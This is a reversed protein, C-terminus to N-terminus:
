TVAVSSRPAVPPQLRCSRRQARGVVKVVKRCGRRSETARQQDEQVASPATAIRQVFVRARHLDCHTTVPSWSLGHAIDQQKVGRSSVDFGTLEQYIVDRRCRLTVPSVFSSLPVPVHFSDGVTLFLGLMRWPFCFDHNKRIPNSGLDARIRTPRHRQDASKRLSRGNGRDKFEPAAGYEGRKVVMPKSSSERKLSLQLPVILAVSIHPVLADDGSRASVRFQRALIRTTSHTDIRGRSAPATGVSIEFLNGQLSPCINKSAQKSFARSLHPATTHRHFSFLLLVAADRSSEKGWYPILPENCDGRAFIVNRFNGENVTVTGVLAFTAKLHRLHWGQSEDTYVNNILHFALSHTFLTLRSKLPRSTKLASSPSQITYPAAGSHFPPPFPLDGLFGCRAIADDPVIGVHSFGSHGPWPNLGRIAKTPPLCALREAVTSGYIFAFEEIFVHHLKRSTVHRHAYTMRLPEGYYSKVNVHSLWVGLNYKIHLSVIQSPAIRAVSVCVGQAEDSRRAPRASNGDHRTLLRYFFATPYFTFGRSTGPCFNATVSFDPTRNGSRYCLSTEPPLHASGLTSVSTGTSPRSPFRTLTRRLKITRKPNSGVKQLGESPIFHLSKSPEECRPRSLRHSHHVHTQLLGPIFNCRGARNGYALIQLPRAPFPVRIAKTPPYCALREAVTVGGQRLELELSNMLRCSHITETRWPKGSDSWALTSITGQELGHDIGEGNRRRQAVQEAESSRAALSVNLGIPDTTHSTVGKQSSQVHSHLLATIVFFFPPPTTIGSFVRRSVADDPVIGVHSFGAPSQARIATTSPSCALREAVTADLSYIKFEFKNQTSSLSSRLRHARLVVISVAAWIEGKMAEVLFASLLRAAKRDAVRQFHVSSQFSLKHTVGTPCDDYTAQKSTRKMEQSLTTTVGPRFQKCGGTTAFQRPATTATSRSRERPWSSAHRFVDGATWHAPMLALRPQVDRIASPHRYPIATFSIMDSSKPYVFFILMQTCKDAHFKTSPPSIPHTGALYMQRVGLALRNSTASRFQVLATDREYGTVGDNERAVAAVRRDVESLEDVRRRSRRKVVMNTLKASSSVAVKYGDLPLPSM